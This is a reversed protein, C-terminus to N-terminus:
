AKQKIATIKWLGKWSTLFKLGKTTRTNGFNQRIYNAATELNLLLMTVIHEDVSKNEWGKMVGCFTAECLCPAQGPSSM